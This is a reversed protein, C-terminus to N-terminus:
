GPQVLLVREGLAVAAGTPPLGRSPPPAFHAIVKGLFSLSLSLSPARHCRRSFLSRWWVMIVRPNLRFPMLVHPFGNYNHRKTPTRTRPARLLFALVLYGHREGPIRDETAPLLRLGAPARGGGAADCGGPRHADAPVGGGREMSRRCCMLTVGNCCQMVAGTSPRMQM